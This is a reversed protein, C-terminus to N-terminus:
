KPNGTSGPATKLISLTRYTCVIEDRQNRVTIAMRLIGRDPKSRSPRAELVDAKTHLEDGPRVPILWRVEDLGPGGMSSEVILGLRAFQAFAIAITQFGSAILGEYFSSKALEPDVHFPQPDYLKAFAIIEAQNLIVPDTKIIEGVKFEDLYRTM